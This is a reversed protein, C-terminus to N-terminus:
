NTSKNQSILQQVQALLSTDGDNVLVHEGATVEEEAAQSTIRSEVQKATLGSRAMVRQIRVETPATVHWVDDMMRDLGATRLLATEVFAMDAGHRNQEEAWRSMDRATAPHVISNLKVRSSEDAFAVESLYTRNISGDTQYTEPGFAETLQNRVDQDHAMLSKARSDCDYVNYGMVQLMRSVVSKGSGIGGTIAILKM